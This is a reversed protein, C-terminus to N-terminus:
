EPSTGVAPPVLRSIPRHRLLAPVVLRPWWGPGGAPVVLRPWWGGGAPAVLRPWWGPGGAPAM